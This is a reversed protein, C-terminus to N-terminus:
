AAGRRRRVAEIRPRRNIITMNLSPGLTLPNLM